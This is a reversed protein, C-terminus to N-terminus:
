QFQYKNYSQLIINYSKKHHIMNGVDNCKSLLVLFGKVEQSIVLKFGNNGVPCHLFWGNNVNQVM